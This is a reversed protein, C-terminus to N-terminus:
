YSLYRDDRGRLNARNQGRIASIGFPLSKAFRYTKVGQFYSYTFKDQPLSMGQCIITQISSVDRQVFLNDPVLTTTVGIRLIEILCLFKKIIKGFDWLIRTCKNGTSRVFFTYLLWIPLIADRLKKQFPLIKQSAKFLGFFAM